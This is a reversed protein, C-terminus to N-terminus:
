WLATHREMVGRGSALVLGGPLTGAFTGFPQVYESRFVVLDDDRERVAEGSFALAEGGAFRVESLDHAFTVPPAEVPTGDIWLTRESGADADHVGSVLNWGVTRGDALEGAGASWSWETLRDHFGASDDVCGLADLAVTEDDLTVTGHVRVAGQKRTWIWGGNGAASVTEVPVGPEVALDVSVGGDRVVVRGAPLRVYRRPARLRTRERLAQKERDWIAWFSQPVPGVRVVGACLMLREGFVGVYRWQKRPRGGLVLPMRALDVPRGTGDGRYPLELAM